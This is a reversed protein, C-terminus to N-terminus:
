ADADMKEKAASEVPEPIPGAWEVEARWKVLCGRSGRSSGQYLRGTKPDRTVYFCNETGFKKWRCFYWGEKEPTEDTWTM